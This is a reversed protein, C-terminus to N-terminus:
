PADPTPNDPDAGGASKKEDNSPAAKQKENNTQKDDKTEPAAKENDAKKESGEKGDKGGKDEQEKKADIEGDGDKDLKNSSISIEVKLVFEGDPYVKKFERAAEEIKEPLQELTKNLGHMALALAANANGKGKLAALEKLKKENEKTIVSLNKSSPRVKLVGKLTLKEEGREIGLRITDGPKHNNLAVQLDDIGNIRWSNKDSALDTIVDNVKLGMEQATSNPKISKVFVQADFGTTTDPTIGLWPRNDEACVTGLLTCLMVCCLIRFM